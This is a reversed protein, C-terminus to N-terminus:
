ANCERFPQDGVIVEVRNGRGHYQLSQCLTRVLPIGGKSGSSEVKCDDSVDSMLGMYNFGRGSDEMKILLSSIGRYVIQQVEIRVFGYPISEFRRDREQDYIDKDEITPDILSSLELVGHNLANDYLAFLICRLKDENVIDEGLKSYQELIIPVPDIDRLSPGSVEMLFRWGGKDGAIAPMNIVEADTRSEALNNGCPFTILTVDDSLDRAGCFRDFEEVIAHFIEMDSKEELIRQLRYAGFMCGFDDTADTLGDSHLVFRDGSDIDFDHFELRDDMVENIGLPVHTSSIQQKVVRSGTDLLYVDPMGSNCVCATNDRSNIQVICAAMFMDTPLLSYLKTNINKLIIEARFGKETMVSFMDAVPLVGVAASLGHGTFDALLINLGGDPNHASLVLDGSFIAAARTMIQMGEVDVNRSSLAASLIQKAVVQEQISNRYLRRLERLQETAIIRAKLEAPTFGSHLFDDGGANMCDLLVGEDAEFGLLIVPTYEEATHARIHQVLKRGSMDSLRVDMIVLDIDKGHLLEIAQEGTECTLLNFGLGQLQSELDPIVPIEGKVTLLLGGEAALRKNVPKNGAPVSM